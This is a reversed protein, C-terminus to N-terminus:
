KYKELEAEVAAVYDKARQLRRKHDETWAQRDADSTRVGRREYVEGNRWVRHEKFPPTESAIKNVLEQGKLLNQELKKIAAIKETDIQEVKEPVVVPAPNIPNVYTPAPDKRPVYPAPDKEIELKRRLRENEECEKDLRKKFDLGIISAEKLKKELEKIKLDEKKEVKQIEAELNPITKETAIYYLSGLSIVLIYAILETLKM